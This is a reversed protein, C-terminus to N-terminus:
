VALDPRAVDGVLLSDGSLLMSARGDSRVLYALHEPRHGPSAIALLELSGVGVVDGARLGPAAPDAPDAPVHVAAATAGALRRRGSVHDAHTHTELVHRIEAGADLAAALYDDIQWKPDVVAAVGRDAILYSACGLDPHLIQRFYM